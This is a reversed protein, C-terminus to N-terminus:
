MLATAKMAEIIQKNQELHEKLVKSIYENYSIKRKNILSERTCLLELGERIGAINISIFDRETPVANPRRGMPKKAPKETSSEAPAVEKKNEVVPQPIPAPTVAQKDIPTIKEEAKTVEPEKGVGEEKLEGDGNGQQLEGDGNGQQDLFDDPTLFVRKAM